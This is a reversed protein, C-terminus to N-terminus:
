RNIQNKLFDNMQNVIDIRTDSVSKSLERYNIDVQQTLKDQSDQINQIDIKENSIDNKLNAYGMGIGILTSGVAIFSAIRGISSKVISELLPKKLFGESLKGEAVNAKANDLSTKDRDSDSVMDHNINGTNNKNFFEEM